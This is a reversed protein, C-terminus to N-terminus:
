WDWWGRCGSGLDFFMCSHVIVHVCCAVAGESGGDAPDGGRGRKKEKNRRRNRNSIAYIDALSKPIPLIEDTILPQPAAEEATEVHPESKRSRSKRVPLLSSYPIRHLNSLV